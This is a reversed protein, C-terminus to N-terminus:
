GVPETVVLQLREITEAVRRDYDEGSVRERLRDSVPLVMPYGEWELRYGSAQDVVRGDAILNGAEALPTGDFLEELAQM